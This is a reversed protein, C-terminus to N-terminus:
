FLGPIFESMGCAEFREHVLIPDSDDSHEEPIEVKWCEILLTKQCALAIPDIEM